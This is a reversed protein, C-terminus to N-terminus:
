CLYNLFMKRPVLRGYEIQYYDKIENIFSNSYTHISDVLPSDMLWKVRSKIQPGVQWIDSGVPHIIFKPNEGYLNTIQTKVDHLINVYPFLNAAYLIYNNKGKLGEVIQNVICYEKIYSSNIVESNINQTSFLHKFVNSTTYIFFQPIEFFYANVNCGNNSLYNLFRCTNKSGGAFSHHYTSIIEKKMKNEQYHNFGIL